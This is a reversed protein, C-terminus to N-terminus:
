EHSHSVSASLWFYLRSRTVDGILCFAFGMRSLGDGNNCARIIENSINILGCECSKLLFMRCGASETMASVMWEGMLSFSMTGGDTREMVTPRITQSWLVEFIHNARKISIAGIIVKQKM